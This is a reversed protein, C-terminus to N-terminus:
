FKEQKHPTDHYGHFMNQKVNVGPPSLTRWCAGGPGTINQVEKCLGPPDRRTFFEGLVERARSLLVDPIQEHAKQPYEILRGHTNVSGERM